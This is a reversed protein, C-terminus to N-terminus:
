RIGREIPRKIPKEYSLIPHWYLSSTHAFLRTFQCGPFYRGNLNRDEPVREAPVDRTRVDNVLLYSGLGSESGM